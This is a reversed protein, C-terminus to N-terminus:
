KGELKRRVEAEAKIAADINNLVAEASFAAVISGDISRYVGEITYRHLNNIVKRLEELKTM